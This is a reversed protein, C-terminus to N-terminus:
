DKKGFTEQIPKAVMLADTRLLSIANETATSLLAKVMGLPEFVDEMESVRGNLVDVGLRPNRRLETLVDMTDMGASEALTQPIIMLADAYAHKAAESKSDDMIPSERIANAMMAQICGAGNVLKPEKVALYAVGIADELARQFEAAAQETPAPLIISAVGADVGEATAYPNPGDEGRIRVTGQGIESDLLDSLDNCVEGGTAKAIREMDSRRINRFALIGKRRFHQIARSDMGKQCFVAKISLEDLHALRDEIYRQQVEAIKEIREPDDLTVNAHPPGLEENLALIRGTVEKMDTPYANKKLVVVGAIMEADSPDGPIGLLKINDPKAITAAAACLAALAEKYEQVSKGTMATESVRSAAEFPTGSSIAAASATDLAIRHAHRYGNTIANPHAGRDVLGDALVLLEALIIVTSTTGDFAAKDQAMAAEVITEAVPDKFECLKLIAAGDNTLIKSGMRDVLMKDMGKPGLTSRVRDAVETAVAAIKRQADRGKIVKTEDDV